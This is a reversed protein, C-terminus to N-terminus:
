IWVELVYFKDSTLANCTNLAIKTIPKIKRNMLPEGNTQIPIRRTVFRGKDSM